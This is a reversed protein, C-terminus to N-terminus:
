CAGSLPRALIACFCCRDDYAVLIEPAANRVQRVTATQKRNSNTLWAVCKMGPRVRVGLVEEIKNRVNLTHLPTSQPAQLTVQPGKVRANVFEGPLSLEDISTETVICHRM